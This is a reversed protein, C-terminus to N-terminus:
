QACWTLRRVTPPGAHHRNWVFWAYATASSNRRGKWGDRHMMPLRNRFPLVMALQGNDLVDNRCTNSELFALRLLMVVNPCLTLAHRVFQNARKFPPNTVIAWRDSDIDPSRQERLFDIHAEGFGYDAIDSSRVGFGAQLLVKSIAGRGCACEWVNPPLPVAEILARVAEPPTEYLDHGRVAHPHRGPQVGHQPTSVNNTSLRSLRM